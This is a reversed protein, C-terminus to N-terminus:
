YLGHMRGPVTHIIRHLYPTLDCGCDGEDLTWYSGDANRIIHQDFGSYAARTVGNRYAQLYATNDQAPAANLTTM